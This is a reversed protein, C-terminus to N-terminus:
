RRRGPRKGTPKQGRGSMRAKGSQRTQEGSPRAKGSNRKGGDAMRRGANQTRGGSKAQRGAEDEQEQRRSAEPRKPRILCKPGYGILDRRGCLLLAEKVLEYNEPLRYQILARQMAKERTGRPIHLKEGTLPNIGTYYMCTSVTSPTPYFDQAQEPIFGMDRIYEALRM